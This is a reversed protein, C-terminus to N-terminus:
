IAVVEIYSNPNLPVREQKVMASCLFANRDETGWFVGGTGVLELACFRLVTNKPYVEKYIDTLISLTEHLGTIKNMAVIYAYGLLNGEEDEVSMLGSTTLRALHMRTDADLMKMIEDLQEKNNWRAAFPSALIDAEGSIANNMRELMEDRTLIRM